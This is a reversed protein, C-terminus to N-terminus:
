ILGTIIHSASTGESLLVHPEHLTICNSYSQRYVVLFGVEKEKYFPDIDVLPLGVLQKQFDAEYKPSLKRGAEMRKTEGQKELRQADKFNRADEENKALQESTLSEVDVTHEGEEDPHYQLEISGDERAERQEIQRRLKRAAARKKQYEKEASFNQTLYYFVWRANVM